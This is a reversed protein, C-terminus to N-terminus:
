GPATDPVDTFRALTPDIRGSLMDAEPKDAVVIVLQM